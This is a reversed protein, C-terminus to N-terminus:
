IELTLPFSSIKEIFNITAKLVIQNELFLLKEHGYLLLKVMESNNLNHLNKPLLIPNLTEFLNNRYLTFMPCELLFHPTTEANTCVCKDDPTDQFNHRKKHSKLPSLGVRLQFIWKIGIPHHISFM